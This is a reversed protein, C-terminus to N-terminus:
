CQLGPLTLPPLVSIVDEQFHGQKRSTFWLPYVTQLLLFTLSGLLVTASLGRTKKRKLGENVVCMQLQIM